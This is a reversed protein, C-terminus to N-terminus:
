PLCLTILYENIMQLPNQQSAMHRSFLQLSSGTLPTNACNTQSTQCIPKMIHKLVNLKGLNRFLKVTIKNHTPSEFYPNLTHRVIDSVNSKDEQSNSTSRPMSSDFMNKQNLRPHLTM